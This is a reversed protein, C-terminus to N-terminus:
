EKPRKFVCRSRQASLNVIGSLEWGDRGLEDLVPVWTPHHTVSGWAGEADSWVQRGFTDITWDVVRYEWRQM